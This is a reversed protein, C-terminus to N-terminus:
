TNHIITGFYELTPNAGVKTQIFKKFDEIEFLDLNQSKAKAVMENMKSCVPSPHITLMHISSDNSFTKNFHVKGFTDLNIIEEICSVESELCDSSSKFEFDDMIQKTIEVYKDFDTEKAINLSHKYQASHKLDAFVITQM